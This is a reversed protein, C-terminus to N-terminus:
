RDSAHPYVPVYLRTVWKTTDPEKMRDTILSQYPIAMITEQYDSIYNTMQRVAEQVTSDGGRVDAELFLVRILRRWRIDGAGDMEKDIPLGVEVRYTGQLQRTVNLMPYGTEHAANRMVFQRLRAVMTYVASDSPYSEFTRETSVLASDMTNGKTIVMGYVLRQDELRSALRSLMGDMDAALRKAQQYREFRGVPNLGSSLSSEWQLVCSDLRINPIVSLRSPLSMGGDDIMVDVMRRFVGTVKCQIVGSRADGWWKARGATDRLSRDAADVNCKVPLVVVVNLRSPILIYIAAVVLILIIGAILLGKKM